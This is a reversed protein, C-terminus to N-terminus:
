VGPLLEVARRYEVAAKEERDLAALYATFALTREAVAACSWRAYSDAVALCAERWTVYGDVMDDVLRQRRSRHLQPGPDDIEKM